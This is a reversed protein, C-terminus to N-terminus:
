FSVTLGFYVTKSLPTNFSSSGTIGGIEPDNKLTDDKIYTWLNDASVYLRLKSLLVKELQKNSFDYALELKKLRMYSADHLWRSSQTQSRANRYMYKPVDTIDGPQQWRNDYVYRSTNSHDRLRLNGNDNQLYGATEFVQGGWSSYFQTTLSFNKYSFTNILSGYFDPTAKGHNYKVAERTSKTTETETEDTYFLEVGTEPDVGAYGYLNLTNFDEGIKRIYNGSLIEDTELETVENKNTTFNVHTTWGFGDNVAVINKTNLSIEIGSNKMGGFNQFVYTDGNLSSVPLNYLLDSTQRNYYDIHGSIRNNYMAFELGIDFTANREWSIDANGASTITAANGGNYFDSTGFTGSYAFSAIQDNGNVGYSTRLKLFNFIDQNGMFDESHLNWGLGVAYFGGYKKNIGFRSSGDRRYSVSALYKNQYDYNANIFMSTISSERRQTYTDVTSGNELTEAGDRLEDVSVNTVKSDIASSEAGVFASLNHDEGISFTYRLLSRANWMLTNINKQIGFSSRNNFGKGLHEPFNNYNEVMKYDGNLSTEFSLGPTFEYNLNVSGRFDNTELERKEDTLIGLPNVGYNFSTNYSGDDNYINLDPRILYINRYPSYYSTGTEHNDSRTKSYGINTTVNLKDSVKTDYKMKITTRDFDIEKLATENKLHGVSLYYRNSGKGGSVSINHQTMLSSRTLEKAWNTDQNPNFPTSGDTPDLLFSLAEAGTNIGNRTYNILGEMYLEQLEATNLSGRVKTFESHGVQSSYTIRADGTRGSKTEVVIVGNAARAGYISTAAADKLVTISKIDNGNIGALDKGDFTPVGDIVYLPSGPTLKAPDGLVSTPAGFGVYGVGEQFASGVGRIIVQPTAQPHSNNSLIQLGAVSGQLGEQLTQKYSSEYYSQKINEAAGTIKERSIKQYGTSILNVEDLKFVSESLTVNIEAQNNVLVEITTYGVFSFVLVADSNSVTITYNGEINASTGNTTGKELITVGPLVEGDSGTITGSIKQQILIGKIEKKRKLLITGNDSFNYNFDGFSLSKQLLKNVRIIGKKLHVKPADKFLDSKYIFTYDTQEKILDFVQDITVVKDTDIKIKDNQSFGNEATFSFVTTCFLFIFTRMVFPLLEKKTTLLVNTLNIEM